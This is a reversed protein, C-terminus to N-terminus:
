HSVCVSRDAYRLKSGRASGGVGGARVGQGRRGAEEGLKGGGGGGM